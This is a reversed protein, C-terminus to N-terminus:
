KSSGPTSLLIINLHIKLFHSTPTHVQDLQSLIPVPPLNNHIRYLVKPNWLIYPIEQGQETSYTLLAARRCQSHFCCITERFTEYIESCVADCGLIYKDQSASSKDTTLCTYRSSNTDAPLAQLCDCYCHSASIYLCQQERFIFLFINWWNFM